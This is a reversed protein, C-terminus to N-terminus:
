PYAFTRFASGPFLGSLARRNEVISSEFLGSTRQGRIRIPSTHAALNM